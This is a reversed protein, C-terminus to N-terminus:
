GACTYASAAFMGHDKWAASLDLKAYLGWQKWSCPQYLRVCPLPLMALKPVNLYTSALM